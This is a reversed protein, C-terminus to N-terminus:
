NALSVLWGAFGIWLATGGLALGLPQLLVFVSGAWKTVPHLRGLSKFDWVALAVIFLDTAGFFAVPGGGGVVPWRAFAASTLSISAILILRKHTQAINRKAIALATLTGFIPIELLPVVLFVLPPVDVGIFGGPRRAGIIAGITGLVVMAAALCAGAVGLRRHLQVRRGAILSAQVVLLTFWAAFAVGHLRFFREAPAPHGPFFPSLFFSRSFGVFVVIALAVTMTLFFKREAPWAGRELDAIAVAM